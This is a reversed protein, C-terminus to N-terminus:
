SHFDNGQLCAKVIGSRIVFDGFREGDLKEKAYKPIIWNLEHLIQEENVSEKFIKNLREGSFGAGLYM